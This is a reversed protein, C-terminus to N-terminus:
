AARAANISIIEAGGTSYADLRDSWAQLLQRRPELYTGRFYAARTQDREKHALQADIVAVDFGSDPKTKGGQASWLALQMTISSAVIIATSVYFAKPVSFSMWYDSSNMSVLYASTLAAFFMVIAFVLLRTMM